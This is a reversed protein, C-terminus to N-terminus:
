DKRSVKVIPEIIYEAQYNGYLLSDVVPIFANKLYANTSDYIIAHILEQTPQKINDNVSTVLSNYIENTLESSITDAIVSISQRLISEEASVNRVILGVLDYM